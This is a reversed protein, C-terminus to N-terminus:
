PEEGPKKCVIEADLKEALEELYELVKRFEM